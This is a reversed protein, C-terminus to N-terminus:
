EGNREHVINCALEWNQKTCFDHLPYPAQSIRFIASELEDIHQNREILETQLPKVYREAYYTIGNLELKDGYKEM